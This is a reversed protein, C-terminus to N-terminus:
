KLSSKKYSEIYSIINKKGIENMSHVFYKPPYIDNDSCYQILWKACDYGTPEIHSPPFFSGNDINYHDFALDHDFAIIEPLGDKEIKEVFQDFNRVIVWEVNPLKVWKVDKPVRIDDLFLNYKM